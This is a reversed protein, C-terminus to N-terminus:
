GGHPPAGCLAVRLEVEREGAAVESPDFARAESYYGALPAQSPQM